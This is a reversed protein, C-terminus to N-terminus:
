LQNTFPVFFNNLFLDLKQKKYAFWTVGSEIKSWGLVSAKTKETNENKHVLEVYQASNFTYM